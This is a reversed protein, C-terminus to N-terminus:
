MTYPLCVQTSELFRVMILHADLDGVPLTSKIPYMLGADRAYPISEDKRPGRRHRFPVCEVARLLSQRAGESSSHMWRWSTVLRQARSTNPHTVTYLRIPIGGQYIVLSVLDVWGQMGGPDSFRTGATIPQLLRPFTVGAPHSHSGIHDRSNGCRHPQKCVAM